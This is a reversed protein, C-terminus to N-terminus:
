NRSPFIGTLSIICTMPIHPKMNEHPQNGGQSTVASAALSTPTTTTAYASTGASTKALFTTNGPTAVTAEKPDVAVTHTHTPMEATNLTHTQAGGIEGLTHGQGVHIPARGRLDPLAFTTQGNGGYTTGLLSFLAQNQSISLLQGNCLAWNKPAFNFAVWSIEGLYPSTTAAANPPALVTGLMGLWVACSLRTRQLRRM